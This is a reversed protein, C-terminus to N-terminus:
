SEATFSGLVSGTKCYWLASVLVCACVYVCTCVRACVVCSTCFRFKRVKGKREEFVTCINKKVVAQRRWGNKNITNWNNISKTSKICHSKSTMENPKVAWILFCRKKTQWYSKKKKGETVRWSHSKKRVFGRSNRLTVLTWIKKEKLNQASIILGVSVGTARSWLGLTRLSVPQESTGTQWRSSMMVLPLPNKKKKPVMWHPSANQYTVTPWGATDMPPHQSCLQPARDTERGEWGWGEVWGVWWDVLQVSSLHGIIFAGPCSILFCLPSFFSPLSLPSSSQRTNNNSYSLWRLM